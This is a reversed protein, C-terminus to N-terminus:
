SSKVAKLSMKFEQFQQRLAIIGAPEPTTAFRGRYYAEVLSELPAPDPLAPSIRACFERPTEGPAPVLRRRALLRLTHQWIEILQRQRAEPGSRRGGGKLLLWALACLALTLIVAGVILGAGRINASQGGRFLSSLDNLPGLWRGQSIEFQARAMWRDMTRIAVVQDGQSFSVVQQYWQFVLQDYLGGAQRQIGTLWSFTPNLASSPTPDFSRWGSEPDFVEVWAHANSQRVKFFRENTNFDGGAYGTVVRAPFGVSRLMLVMGGAFFECHGSRSVTLFNMIPDTGAPTKNELSYIFNKQFFGLLKQAAEPGTAAPGVISRTLTSLRNQNEPDFPNQLYLTREEPSLRLWKLQKARRKAYKDDLCFLSYSYVDSPPIKFRISRSVDNFALVERRPLKGGSAYQYQIIYHSVFPEVYFTMATGEASGSPPYVGWNEVSENKRYADIKESTRWGTGSYEDLTLIPWYPLRNKFDGPVKVYFATAESLQIKQTAGWSIEDSFGSVPQNTPPRLNLNSFLGTVARRPIVVFLVSSCILILLLTLLSLKWFARSMIGREVAAQAPPLKAYAALALLFGVGLLTFVSTYFFFAISVTLITTGMIQLLCLLFLQAYDRARRATGFRNFQLYFILHMVADFFYNPLLKYELLLIVIVGATMLHWTGNKLRRLPGYFVLAVLTLVLGPALTFWELADTSWLCWLTWAMMVWGLGLLNEELTGRPSFARLLPLHRTSSNM